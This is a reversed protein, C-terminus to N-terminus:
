APPPAADITITICGTGGDYAQNSAALWSSGNWWYARNGGNLACNFISLLTFSSGPAIYVDTFAGRNDSFGIAGGPNAAYRAAVLTGSGVASITIGQTSATATGDVADSAGSGQSTVGAGAASVLVYLANSIAAEPAPNAVRVAFVGPSLLRNAPVVATLTTSNIFTTALNAGNWQVVAGNLFKKGTVTLSLQTGGAAASYQSLNSLSFLDSSYKVIYASGLYTQLPTQGDPGLWAARATGDMILDDQADLALDFGTSKSEFFMHWQYNGAPALKLVFFNNNSGVKYPRLPAQGDPGNWSTSYDPSQETGEAGIVYIYGKSDTVPKNSYQLEKGTSGYWTHWLYDGGPTLKMVFTDENYPTNGDDSFAHLPGQGSPGLFPWGIGSLYIYGSRDLTIGSAHDVKTSGYYTHWQYAGASNLKLVVIDDAGAHTHRPAGWNTGAGTIYANGAADVAIDDAYDDLQPALGGYFTHWQYVGAPNLKLILMNSNWTEGGPIGSYPHLPSLKLDSWPLKVTTAVYVNGSGDLALGRGGGIAGSSTQEYFTHWLYVGSPSLKMVFLNGRLAEALGSHAHLPAGWTNRSVGLVYINGNADLEIDVANNVEQSTDTLPVALGGFFTHWQYQGASNLKLIFVDMNSGPNHAHLPAQGSPGNWSLMSTGLIYSNGSADVAVAAAAESISSSGYFTHWTYSTDVPPAPATASGIAYSASDYGSYFMRLTSGVQLVCGYDASIRDFAGVGGLPLVMQRRTWTTGDPSSAYGIQCDSGSFNCGSYWMHYSKGDYIVKPAYPTADWDYGLYPLVAAAVPKTWTIGDTSTAYGIGSESGNEGSYWMKFNNEGVKVVNPMSVHASDWAAAGGVTLVAGTGYKTWNIGDTSTAYGVRRQDAANMGTYWMKYTSGDKIVTPFSVGGADWSGVAGPSLVPASGYRTWNTGDSSTAYGIKRSASAASYSVFWMKYTSGDLIVAPAYVWQDDWAGSAGHSLIPNSVAKVWGGPLFADAQAASLSTAAILILVLLISLAKSKMKKSRTSHFRLQCLHKRLILPASFHKEHIQSKITSYAKLQSRTRTEKFSQLM